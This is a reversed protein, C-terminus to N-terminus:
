QGILCSPVGWCPLELYEAGEGKQWRAGHLVSHGAHVYISCLVRFFHLVGLWVVVMLLALLVLVLLVLVRRCVMV